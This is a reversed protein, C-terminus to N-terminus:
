NGEPYVAMIASVDSLLRVPTNCLAHFPYKQMEAFDNGELSGQPAYIIIPIPSKMTAIKDYVDWTITSGKEHQLIVLRHDDTLHSVSGAGVPLKDVNDFFAAKQLMRLEHDMSNASVPIIAIPRKWNTILRKEKARFFRTYAINTITAGVVAAGLSWVGTAVTTANSITELDIMQKLIGM